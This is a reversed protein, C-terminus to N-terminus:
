GLHTGIGQQQMAWEITKIHILLADAETYTQQEPQVLLSKIRLTNKTEIPYSVRVRTIYYKKDWWPEHFIEPDMNWTSVTMAGVATFRRGFSM